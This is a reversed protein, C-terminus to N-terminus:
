KMTCPAKKTDEMRSKWRAAKDSNLKELKDLLMILGLEEQELNQQVQRLKVVIANDDDGAKEVLNKVATDLTPYIEFMKILNTNRIEIMNIREDPPMNTPLQADLRESVEDWLAQTSKELKEKECLYGRYRELMEASKEELAKLRGQPQCAAAVLISCILLIYRPLTGTTRNIKRQCHM